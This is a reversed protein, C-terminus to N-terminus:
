RSVGSCSIIVVPVKIGKVFPDTSFDTNQSSGHALMQMSIEIVMAM